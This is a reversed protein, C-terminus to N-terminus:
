PFSCWFSNTLALELRKREHFVKQDNEVEKVKVGVLQSVRNVEDLARQDHSNKLAEEVKLVLTERLRGLDDSSAQWLRMAEEVRCRAEFLATPKQSTLVLKELVPLKIGLRCLSKWSMDVLARLTPTIMRARTKTLTGLIIAVLQLIYDREFPMLCHTQLDLSPDRSRYRDVYNRDIHDPILTEYFLEMRQIWYNYDASSFETTIFLNPAVGPTTSAVVLPLPNPSGIQELQLFICRTIQPFRQDNCPIILLFGFKKPHM